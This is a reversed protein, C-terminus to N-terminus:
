PNCDPFFTNAVIKSTQGRTLPNNPRFYSRNESDCPEGEGGCDYGGMVGPRNLLLREVFVWFTHAPDVDAFTYQTPPITDSFGAANSVIKTLQGRTAGNGPRFYPRNESDCPENPDLGCDYGAMVDRDALREVWVWFTSGYPVDTFTWRSPPVEEQFGASESVIKALQGRTVYSNPRFYPDNAPNCPEGTGGCPYGQIIDQCALCRVFPYFTNDSPVDAFQIACPGPTGTPTPTPLQLGGACHVSDVRNSYTGDWGGAVLLAFTSPSYAAALTRRETPLSTITDWTNTAPDYREAASTYDVWGGGLAFLYGGCGPAGGNVGVVAVGGRPTIMPQKVTWTDTAPDYAEVTALDTFDGPIGGVAYVLGDVAAAGLYGRATPMPARTQWRSGAPRAPDYEFVTDRVDLAEDLGGIVYLKGNLAAVGAGFRPAPM